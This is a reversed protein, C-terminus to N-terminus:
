HHTYSETTEGYLWGWVIILAGYDLNGIYLKVSDDPAGGGNDQADNDAAPAPAAQYNSDEAAPAPAAGEDGREPSRSRERESMNNKNNNHNHNDIITISDTTHTTGGFSAPVLFIFPQRM